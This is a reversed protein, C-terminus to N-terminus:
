DYSCMKIKMDFLCLSSGRDTHCKSCWRADFNRNLDVGVCESGEKLVSRNKRWMRDQETSSCHFAISTETTLILSPDTEYKLLTLIKLM